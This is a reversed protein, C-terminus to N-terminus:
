ISEETTDLFVELDTTPPHVSYYNVRFTDGAPVDYMPRWEHSGEGKGPGTRGSGILTSGHFISYKGQTSCSVKCQHLHRIKGAGVTHSIVEVEVGPTTTGEFSLPISIGPYQTTLLNGGNGRLVFWKNQTPDYLVLANGRDNALNSEQGDLFGFDQPFDAQVTILVGAIVPAGTVIVELVLRNHMRTVIVRDSLPDGASILQHSTLDVREGPTSGDGPGYDYYNAKISGGLDILKVFLTSLVANGQPTISYIHTGVDLQQIPIVIREEYLALRTNDAM